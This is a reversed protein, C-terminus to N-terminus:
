NVKELEVKDREKELESRRLPGPRSAINVVQNNFIAEYRRL